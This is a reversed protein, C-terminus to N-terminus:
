HKMEECSFARMMGMAYHYFILVEKFILSSSYEMEYFDNFANQAIRMVHLYRNQDVLAKTTHNMSMAEIM